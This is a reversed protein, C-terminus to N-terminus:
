CSKLGNRCGSRRDSDQSRLELQETRKAEKQVYRLHEQSLANPCTAAMMGDSGRQKGSLKRSLHCRKLSAKKRLAGQQKEIRAAQIM